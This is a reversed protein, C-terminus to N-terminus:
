AYSARIRVARSARSTHCSSAVASRSSRSAASRFALNLVSKQTSSPSKKARARSPSLFWTGVRVEFM